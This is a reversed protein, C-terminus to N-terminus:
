FGRGFTAGVPLVAHHAPTQKQSNNKSDSAIACPLKLVTAVLLEAFMLQRLFTRM